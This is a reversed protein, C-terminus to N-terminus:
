EHDGGWTDDIIHHSFQASLRGSDSQVTGVFISSNSTVLSFYIRKASLAEHGVVM